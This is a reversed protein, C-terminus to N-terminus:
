SVEPTNKPIVRVKAMFQVKEPIKMMASFLNIFSLASPACLDFSLVKLLLKEM